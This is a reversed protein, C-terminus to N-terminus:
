PRTTPLLRGIQEWHQSCNQVYPRGGYNGSVFYYIDSSFDFWQVDIKRDVPTLWEYHAHCSGNIVHSVYGDRSSTGPSFYDHAIKMDANLRICPLDNFREVDVFRVTGSVDAPVLQFGWANMQKTMEAPDIPWCSGVRHLGATSLALDWNVSKGPANLQIFVSLAALAQANPSSDGLTFHTEGDRIRASIETNGPLLDVEAGNKLVTLKRIHYRAATANGDAGTRFVYNDAILHYTQGYQQTTPQMGSWVTQVTNLDGSIIEMSEREGPHDSHELQISFRSNPSTKVDIAHHAACSAAIVITAGLMAAELWLRLRQIPRNNM